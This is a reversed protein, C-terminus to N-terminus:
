ALSAPPAQTTVSNMQAEKGTGTGRSHSLRRHYATCARGPLLDM